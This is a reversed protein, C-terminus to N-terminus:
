IVNTKITQILILIYKMIGNTSEKIVHKLTTMITSYKFKFFNIRDINNSACKQSLIQLNLTNLNNLFKM